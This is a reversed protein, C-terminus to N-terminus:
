AIVAALAISYFKSEMSDARSTLVIPRKGGVVVSASKADALFMMSKYFVNGTEIQPMLIMDVDGAVQSTIGKHLAAERSIANDLAFPGDIICGTIKDEQNRKILEVADVTPPMKENFKEIAAIVGVKPMKIGLKHFVDVGNEVIEQKEDVNPYMNMAGDSMMLLKHYNKLEFLSVHSLRKTGKFGYAEKLVSKLIIKTDVYGKMLIHCENESVLKVAYDCAKEHEVEDIIEYYNSNINLDELLMLIIEKNGILVPRIINELRAKEIAELVHKDDACAVVLTKLEGEKAKVILDDFNKLM